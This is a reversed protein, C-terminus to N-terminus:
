FVISVIHYWILEVILSQMFNSAKLGTLQVYHCNFWDKFGNQQGKNLCVYRGNYDLFEVFISNQKLKSTM